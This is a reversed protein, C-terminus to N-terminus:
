GRGSWPRGLNTLSVQELEEALLERRWSAEGELLAGRGRRPRAREPNAHSVREREEAVLKRHSRGPAEQLAEM